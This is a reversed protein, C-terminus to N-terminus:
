LRTRLYAVSKNSSSYCELKFLYIIDYFTSLKVIPYIFKIENVLFIFYKTYIFRLHVADDLQTKNKINNM